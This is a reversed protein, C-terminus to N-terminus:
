VTIIKIIKVYFKIPYKMLSLSSSYSSSISFAVWLVNAFCLQIQLKAFTNHTAAIGDPEIDSTLYGTYKEADLRM